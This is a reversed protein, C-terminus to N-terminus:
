QGYFIIRTCGGRHADFLDTNVSLLLWLLSTLTRLGIADAPNKNNYRLAMTMRKTKMKVECRMAMTLIM